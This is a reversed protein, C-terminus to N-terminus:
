GDFADHALRPRGKGESLGVLPVTRVYRKGELAEVVLGVRGGIGAVPNVILGLRM